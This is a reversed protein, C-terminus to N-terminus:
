FSKIINIFNQLEDKYTELYQSCENKDFYDQCHNMIKTFTKEFNTKSIFDKSDIINNEFCRKLSICLMEFYNKSNEFLNLNCYEILFNLIKFNHCEISESIFNDHDFDFSDSDPIYNPDCKVFIKMMTDFDLYSKIGEIFAAEFFGKGCEINNEEVHRIFLRVIEFDKSNCAMNLANLLLYKNDEFDESDEGFYDLYLKVIDSHGNEVAAYMGDSAIELIEGWDDSHISIIKELLIKVMEYNGLISIKNILNDPIIYDVNFEILLKFMEIDNNRIAIYTPSKKEEHIDPDAGLELLLKAVEYNKGSIASSLPRMYDEFKNVLDFGNINSTKSREDIIKKIFEKSSNSCQNSFLRANQIEEPTLRM